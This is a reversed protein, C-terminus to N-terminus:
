APRRRQAVRFAINAVATLGFMAIAFLVPWFPMTVNASTLWKQGRGSGALENSISYRWSAFRDSNPPSSQWRSM